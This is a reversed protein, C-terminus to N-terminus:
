WGSKNNNIAFPTRKQRFPWSKPGNEYYKKKQTPKHSTHEGKLQKNSYLTKKYSNFSRFM